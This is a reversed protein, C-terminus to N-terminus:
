NASSIGKILLEQLVLVLRNYIRAHRPNVKSVKLYAVRKGLVFQGGQGSYRREHIHIVEGVIDQSVFNGPDQKLLEYAAACLVSTNSGNASGSGNPFLTNWLVAMDESIFLLYFTDSVQLGHSEDCAICTLSHVAPM